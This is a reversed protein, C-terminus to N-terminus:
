GATRLLLHGAAAGTPRGDSVAVTGNVIVSRIGDPPLCPDEYTARDQVKEPDFVVIDAVAGPEMKGRGKLGLKEAPGQSMKWVAETLTLLKEERVYRALVRPFTGWLRPHPRRGPLGDSGIFGRHHRMMQRVSEESMSFVIMNVAGREELILDCVADEPSKGTERAIEAFSKGEYVRNKESAVQSVIVRDAGARTLSSQWESSGRVMQEKAKERMGATGLRELLSSLGGEHMWPPLLVTATTSSATYPYQDFSVDLGEKRARDIEGLIEQTRRRRGEGPMKMHSIQLSVGSKRAIELAEDVFPEKRMHTAYLAGRKAVIRALAVIEETRSFVGPPYILGTSFGWGGQELTEKLMEEMLGIEGISPTRDSEGMACARLNGHGVLPVVNTVLRARSLRNLYNEWSLDAKGRANGLITACLRSFGRCNGNFPAASFGCNGVVETTVGQLLKGYFPEEDLLFYDNHSHMDIFGPCVICGAADIVSAAYEPATGVSVVRGDEVVVDARVPAGTGNVVTGGRIVVSM